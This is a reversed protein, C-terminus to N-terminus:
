KTNRYGTGLSKMTQKHTLNASNKAAHYNQSVYNNWTPSPEIPKRTNNYAQTGTSVAQGFFTKPDSSEM